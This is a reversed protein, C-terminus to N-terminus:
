ARSAPTLKMPSIGMYTGSSEASTHLSGRKKWSSLSLTGVSTAPTGGSSKVSSPWSQPLGRYSQSAM